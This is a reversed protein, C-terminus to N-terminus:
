KARKLKKKITKKENNSEEKNTNKKNNTEKKNKFNNLEEKEDITLLNQTNILTILRKQEEINIINKIFDRAITTKLFKPVQQFYRKPISKIEKVGDVILGIKTGEIDVLIIRDLENFEKKELGLRQRLNLLTVVDGRLNIIGEIFSPADPIHTIEPIRNIEIIENIDIAFEEDSIKFIAINQLDEEMKIEKKEDSKIEDKIEKLEEESIIKEEDLIFCINDDSINYISKLHKQTIDDFTQPTPLIEHKLPTIVNEIKDVLLGVTLNKFKFIIIKEQRDELEVDSDLVFESDIGLLTKLDVLPLVNNRLEFLGLIEESTGPIENIRTLRIIEQIFRIEIGYSQENLRFVLLKEGYDKQVEETKRIDEDEQNFYDKQTDIFKANKEINDILEKLSLIRVIANKSIEFVGEILKKDIGEINDPFSIDEDSVPYVESIKDILFGITYDKFNVIVIKSNNSFETYNNFLKKKLDFITIVNGRLNAIGRIYPETLPIETIEPVDIVERIFDLEFAYISDAIYFTLFKKINAM